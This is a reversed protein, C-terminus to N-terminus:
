QSRRAHFSSGNNTVETPNESPYPRDSYPYPRVSSALNIIRYAWRRPCELMYTCPSEGIPRITVIQLRKLNRYNVRWFSDDDFVVYRPGAISGKYIHIIRGTTAGYEMPRDKVGRYIPLMASRTPPPTRSEIRSLQRQRVAVHKEACASNLCVAALIVGAVCWRSLIHGSIWSRIQCRRTLINNTDASRIPISM